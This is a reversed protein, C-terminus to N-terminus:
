LFAVIYITIATAFTFIGLSNLSHMVTAGSGMAFPTRRKEAVERGAEESILDEEPSEAHQQLLQRQAEQQLLKQEQARMAAQADQLHEKLRQHRDAEEKQTHLQEQRMKESYAKAIKIRDQMSLQEPTDAHQLVTAIQQLQQQVAADHEQWRERM